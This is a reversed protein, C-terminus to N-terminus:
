PRRLSRRGLDHGALAELKTQHGQCGDVARVHLPFSHAVTVGHDDASVWRGLQGVARAMTEEDYKRQAPM